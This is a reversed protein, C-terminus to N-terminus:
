ARVDQVYKATIRKGEARLEGWVCGRSAPAMMKMVEYGNFGHKDDAYGLKYGPTRIFTVLKREVNDKNNLTLVAQSSIYDQHNHGNWVLDVGQVYSAQRSAQTLGKTLAAEGGAGHNYWIRITDRPTKLDAYVSIRVFGGYGGVVVPSGLQRMAGVFRQVLDTGNHRVVAYEHNGYSLMALNSAYPRFFEVTEELVRDFYDIGKLSAKLEKYSRRPDNQGQMGDFLDGATLIIANRDKAEDLHKKLLKLDCYPSDIHIDSLFLIHQHFNSDFGKLDIRTVADQKTQIIM